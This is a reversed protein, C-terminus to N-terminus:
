FELRLAFQIVRPDQNKTLIKGFNLGNVALNPGALTPHNFANYMETRFQLRARETMAFNKLISADFFASSPGQIIGTGSNGFTLPTPAM